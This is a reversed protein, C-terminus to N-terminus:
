KTDKTFIYVALIPLIVALLLTAETLAYSGLRDVLTRFKFVVDVLFISLAFWCICFICAYKIKRKRLKMILQM